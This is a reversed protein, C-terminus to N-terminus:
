YEGQFTLHALTRAQHSPFHSCCWHKSPTPATATSSIITTLAVYFINVTGYNHYVHPIKCHIVLMYLVFYFSTLM